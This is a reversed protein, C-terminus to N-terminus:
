KRGRASFRNTIDSYSPTQRLRISAAELQNMRDSSSGKDFMRNFSGQIQGAPTTKRRNMFDGIKDLREQMENRKQIEPQLRAVSMGFQDVVDPKRKPANPNINPLAKGTVPDQGGRMYAAKPDLFDNAYINKKDKNTNM